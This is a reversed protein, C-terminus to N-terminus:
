RYEATYYTATEIEYNYAIQDTLSGGWFIIRVSPVVNLKSVNYFEYGVLDRRKTHLTPTSLVISECAPGM